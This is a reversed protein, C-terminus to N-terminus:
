RKEPKALWEHGKLMMSFDIGPMAYRKLRWMSACPPLPRADSTACVDWASEDLPM